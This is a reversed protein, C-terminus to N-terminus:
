LANVIEHYQRRVRQWTFNKKYSAYGERGVRGRLEANTVLEQLAKALEEPSSPAVLVGGGERLAEPIGGRRTAVVPLGSAMGEIVALPFPDNYVAPLCFIHAKRFQDALDAGAYYGDLAV